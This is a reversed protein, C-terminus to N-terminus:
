TEMKYQKKTKKKKFQLNQYNWQFNSSISNFRDFEMFKKYSRLNVFYLNTDKYM